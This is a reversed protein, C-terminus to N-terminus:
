DEGCGGAPCARPFIIEDDEPLLGADLLPIGFDPLPPDNATMVAQEIVIGDRQAARAVIEPVPEIPDFADPNITDLVNQAATAAALNPLGNRRMPVDAFVRLHTGHDIWGTVMKM